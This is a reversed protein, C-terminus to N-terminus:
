KVFKKGNKVYVGPALVAESKGVKVGQLNYIENDEKEVDKSVAKIGETPYEGQYVLIPNDNEVGLGKIIVNAYRSTVGAPLETARFTMYFAHNEGYGTTDFYCTLWEEEYSSELEIEYKELDDNAAYVYVWGEVANEATQGDDSVKVVNVNEYTEEGETAYLTTPVHVKDLYANFNIGAVLPSNYSFSAIQGNANVLAEAQYFETEGDANTYAFDIYDEPQIEVGSMNFDAGDEWTVYVEAPFDIVFPAQTEFGDEEIINNFVINGFTIEVGNRNGTGFSVFDEDTAVLTYVPEADESTDNANYIAMHITGIKGSISTMYVVASESYIPTAPQPFRQYIGICDYTGDSTTFTGTGLLNDNDLAGWVHNGTHDDLFGMPFIESWNYVASGHSSFYQSNEGLTFSGSENTITPLSSLGYGPDCNYTFKGDEVYQTIDDGGLTWSTAAPNSQDIFSIDTFPATTLICPGYGSGDIGWGIYLTGAPKSYYVGNAASSKARRAGPAALQMQETMIPAKRQVMESKSFPAPNFGAVSAPKLAGPTPQAIAFASAALVVAFSTFIKKM